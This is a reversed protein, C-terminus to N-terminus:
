KIEALADLFLGYKPAWKPKDTPTAGIAYYRFLSGGQCPHFTREIERDMAMRGLEGHTSHTGTIEVLERATSGPHAAVAKLVKERVTLRAGTPDSCRYRRAGKATFGFPAEDRHLLDAVKDSM